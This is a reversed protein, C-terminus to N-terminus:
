PECAALDFFQRATAERQDSAARYWLAERLDPLLFHAPAPEGRRPLKSSLLYGADTGIYEIDGLPRPGGDPDPARWQPATVDTTSALHLRADSGGPYPLFDYDRGTRTSHLRLALGSPWDPTTDVVLFRASVAPDERLVYRAHEPVCSAALGLMLTMGLM